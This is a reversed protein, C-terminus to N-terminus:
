WSASHGFTGAQKVPEAASMLPESSGRLGAQLVM